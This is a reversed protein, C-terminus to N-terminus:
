RLGTSNAVLLFVKIWQLMEEEETTKVTREGEWDLSEIVMFASFLAAVTARFYSEM